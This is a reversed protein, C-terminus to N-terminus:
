GKRENWLEYAGLLGSAKYYVRKECSACTCLYQTNEEYYIKITTGGCFPCPKLELKTM